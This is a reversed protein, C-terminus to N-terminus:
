SLAEYAEQRLLNLNQYVPHHQKKSFLGRQYQNQTWVRSLGKQDIKPYLPYFFIQDPLFAKGFQDEILNKLQLTWDTSASQTWTKPYVFILLYIYPSLSNEPNRDDIIMCTIVFDLQSVCAEIDQIPYALGERLPLTAASIIWQKGIQTLVFPYVAEHIQLLGYGNMAKEGSGNLQALMWPLGLSPYVFRIAQIPHPSSFLVSGGQFSDILLDVAPIKQIQNVEVFPIWSQTDGSLPDKYWHKTMSAPFGPDITWLKQLEPCVGLLDIKEGKLRMPDERLVDDKIHILCAGSLLAALTCYPEEMFMSSLPRAFTAGPKLHLVLRSDRLCSLYLQNVALTETNESPVPAILRQIPDDAKYIHSPQAFDLPKKGSLDLSIIAFSEDLHIVEEQSPLIVFDPQLEKLVQFFRGSGLFRDKLPLIAVIMGLRIATMLGVLFPLGQPLTLAVTQGAEVKYQDKWIFAQTSVLNHIEEYTWIEEEQNPLLVKLCPNDDQAHKLLCDFYFDYQQFLASKSNEHHHSSFLDEWFSFFDEYSQHIFRHVEPNHSATQSSWWVQAFDKVRM